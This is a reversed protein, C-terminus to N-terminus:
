VARDASRQVDQGQRKLWRQAQQIMYAKPVDSDPVGINAGSIDMDQWWGDGVINAIQDDTYWRGSEGDPPAFERVVEINNAASTKKRQPANEFLEHINM